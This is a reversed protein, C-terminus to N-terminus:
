AVAVDQLNELLEFRDSIMCISASTFHDQLESTKSCASNSPVSSQTLDVRKLLTNCNEEKKTM